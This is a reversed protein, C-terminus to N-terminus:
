SGKLDISGDSNIKLLDGDADVIMIVPFARTGSPASSSGDMKVSISGDSNIKLLNSDSDVLMRVTIALASTTMLGLLLILILFKRM